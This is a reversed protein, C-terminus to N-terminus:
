SLRRLVEWHRRHRVAEGNRIRGCYARSLGTARALSDLRHPQIGPLIEHKFVVPDLDGQGWHQSEWEQIAAHQEAAREARKRQCVIRSSNAQRAGSVESM